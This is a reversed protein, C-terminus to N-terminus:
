MLHNFTLVNIQTDNAIAMRGKKKDVAIPPITQIHHIIASDQKGSNITDFKQILQGSNLDVLKPYEYLDIAYDETIAVLTGLTFDVKTKKLFKEQRISYLGIESPNLLAINTNDEDALSEEATASVVILDDTLFDAACIEGNTPFQATTEDFVVTNKIGEKISYLEIIGYPHWVWGTNLLITNSPSVSFRSHFCDAPERNTSDVIKQGSEVHEIEIQNYENPCHVICDVGDIVLFAIPYEYADAQYYSRNIERLIEGNKLLVGKTGRKEYIFAYVGNDSQIAADFKFAYRRSSTKFEGAETYVSGGDVWDILDNGLWNLAKPQHSFQIVQHKIM